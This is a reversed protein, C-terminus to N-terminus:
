PVNLGEKLWDAVASEDASDNVIDEPVHQLLKIAQQLGDRGSQEQIQLLVEQLPYPEVLQERMASSDGDNEYYVWLLRGLSDMEQMGLNSGGSMQYFDEMLASGIAETTRIKA